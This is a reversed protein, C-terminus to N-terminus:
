RIVVDLFFRGKMQNEPKSSTTLLPLLLVVGGGLLNLVLVLLDLQGDQLVVLNVIIALDITQSTLTGSLLTTGANEHRSVKIALVTSLTPQGVDEVLRFFLLTSEQFVYRFSTKSQKNYLYQMAELFCTLPNLWLDYM